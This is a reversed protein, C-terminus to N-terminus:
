VPSVFVFLAGCVGAAAIGFRRAYCVMLLPLALLFACHVLAAASHRGFAFAFLFLMEVGESLNAYMNTTIRYFGHHLLYRYVLGLHYTVGDPSIEPAMANFFYLVAYIGYIAAFLRRWFRDLPPLPEGAPRHAGNWFAFALIAAGAILFTGKRALGAACAAFVLGSLLPAGCLFALLHEEERYFRLRLGRLLLKGTAAAVAVTFVAGFLIYLAQPM